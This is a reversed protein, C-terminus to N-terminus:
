GLPIAAWGLALPLDAATAGLGIPDFSLVQAVWMPVHGCHHKPGWVM